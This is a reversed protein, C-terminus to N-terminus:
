GNAKGQGLAAAIAARVVTQADVHAAILQCVRITDHRSEAFPQANLARRTMEDDIVVARPQTYAYEIRWNPHVKLNDLAGLSPAGAVWAWASGNETITRHCAVDAQRQEAVLARLAANEETLRFNDQVTGAPDANTELWMVYRRAREPLANVEAPTLAIKASSAPVMAAIREWLELWRGHILDPMTATVPAGARDLAAEIQEFTSNDMGGPTARVFDATLSARKSWLTKLELVYHDLKKKWEEEAPADKRAQAHTYNHACEIVSQIAIRVPPPLEQLDAM